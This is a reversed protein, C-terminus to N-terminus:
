VPPAVSAAGAAPASVAGAAGMVGLAATKLFSRRSTAFKEESM